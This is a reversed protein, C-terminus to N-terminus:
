NSVSDGNKLNFRGNLFSKEPIESTIGINSTHISDKGKSTYNQYPNDAAILYQMSLQGGIMSLNETCLIAQIGTTNGDNKFVM